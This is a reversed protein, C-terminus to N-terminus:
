KEAVGQLIFMRDEPEIITWGARCGDSSRGKRPWLRVRQLHEPVPADPEGLVHRGQLPLLFPFEFYVLFLLQYMGLVAVFNTSM